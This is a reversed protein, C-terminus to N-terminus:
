RSDSISFFRRHTGPSLPNAESLNPLLAQTVTALNREYGLVGSKYHRRASGNCHERPELLGATVLFRQYLIGGVAVTTIGVPM